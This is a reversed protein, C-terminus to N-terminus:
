PVSGQPVVWCEPQGTIEAFLDFNQDLVANVTGKLTKTGSGPLALSM